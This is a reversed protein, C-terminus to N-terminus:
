PSVAAYKARARESIDGIETLGLPFCGIVASIADEVDAGRDEVLERVCLIAGVKTPNARARAYATPLYASVPM